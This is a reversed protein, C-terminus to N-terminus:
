EEDLKQPFKRVVDYDADVLPVLRDNNLTVFERGAESSEPWSTLTKLLLDRVAKPVRQHVVFLTNPISPTNFMPRFFNGWKAEFVHTARLSTVCASATKAMVLQLCSDHTKTYHLTIDRKLDFGAQLLAKKAMLTVAATVPPLAVTTGKLDQLSRLPSDSLVMFSAMLPKEFRAVPLYHYHDHALVYDFPQVVAIDYTERSLEERFESFTPKTRFLVPQGLVRAFEAAVPSFVKDIQGVAIMPFAGFKYGPKESATAPEAAHTSPLPLLSLLVGAGFMLLMAATPHIIRAPRLRRWTSRVKNVFTARIGM